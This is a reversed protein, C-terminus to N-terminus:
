TKDLLCAASIYPEVGTVVDAPVAKGFSEWQDSIVMVRDPYVIGTSVPNNRISILYENDSLATSDM